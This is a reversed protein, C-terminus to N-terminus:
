VTDNVGGEEQNARELLHILTGKMVQMQKDQSWSICLLALIAISLSLDAIM